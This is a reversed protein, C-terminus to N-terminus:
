RLHRSFDGNRRCQEKLGQDQKHRSIQKLLDRLKLKRFRNLSRFLRERARPVRLLISRNFRRVRRAQSM